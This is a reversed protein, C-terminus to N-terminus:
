TSVMLTLYFEFNHVSHIVALVSAVNKVIIVPVLLFNFM